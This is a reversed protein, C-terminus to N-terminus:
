EFRANGRSLLSKPGTLVGVTNVATEPARAPVRSAGQATELTLDLAEGFDEDLPACLDRAHVRALSAWALASGPCRECRSRVAAFRVHAQTHALGDM